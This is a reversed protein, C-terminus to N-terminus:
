THAPRLALLTTRVLISSLTPNHVVKDAAPVEKKNIEELVEIRSMMNKIADRVRQKQEWAERYSHLYVPLKTGTLMSVGNSLWRKQM